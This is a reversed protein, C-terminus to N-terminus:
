PLAGQLAREALESLDPLRTSLTAAAGALVGGVAALGATIEPLLAVIVVIAVAVLVAILLGKALTKLMEEAWATVVDVIADVTLEGMRQALRRVLQAVSVTAGVAAAACIANLTEQLYARLRDKLYKRVDALLSNTVQLLIQRLQGELAKGGMEEVFDAVMNALTNASALEAAEGLLPNMESVLKVLTGRAHRALVTLGQRITLTQLRRTSRSGLDDVARDVERQASDLAFNLFKDIAKQDSVGCVITESEDATLASYAIVGPLCWAFRVQRSGVALSAPPQYRTPVMLSFADESALGLSQRWRRNEESNGHALYNLVQAEGEVLAGWSAPKLEALEVKRGSKYALDPTGPDGGVFPKVSTSQASGYGQTRRAAYTADQIRHMTTGTPGLWAHGSAAKVFNPRLADEVDNGDIETPPRSLLDRCSVDRALRAGRAAMRPRRGHTVDAAAHAAEREAPSDQPEVTLTALTTTGQQQVVHALEHALLPSGPDDIAPRAPAGVVIDTGATYALAGVDRASEAARTGTHVRVASFDQGFRPGFYALTDAALPTGPSALVEHVSRPVAPTGAPGHVVAARQLPAKEEDPCDCPVPGCRQLLGRAEPAAPAAPGPHAHVSRVTM